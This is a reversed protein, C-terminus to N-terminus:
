TQCVGQYVLKQLESPTRIANISRGIVRLEFAQLVNACRKPKGRLLELLEGGQHSKLVRHKPHHAHPFRSNRLPNDLDHNALNTVSRLHNGPLLKSISASAVGTNMTGVACPQFKSRTLARLPVQSTRRSRLKSSATGSSLRSSSKTRPSGMAATSACRKRKGVTSAASNGSITRM